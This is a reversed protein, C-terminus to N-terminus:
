RLASVTPWTQGVAEVRVHLLEASLRGRCGLPRRAPRRRALAGRREPADGGRGGAVEEEPAPRRHASASRRRRNPRLRCPRLGDIDERAFENSWRRFHPTDLPPRPTDASPTPNERAAQVAALADLRKLDGFHPDKELNEDLWAAFADQSQRRCVARVAALTRQPYYVARLAELLGGGCCTHSRPHNASDGLIGNM